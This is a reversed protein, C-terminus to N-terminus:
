IFFININNTFTFIVITFPPPFVSLILKCPDHRAVLVHYLICLGLLLATPKAEWSPISPTYGLARWTVVLSQILLPSVSAVSDSVVSDVGVVMSIAASSSSM